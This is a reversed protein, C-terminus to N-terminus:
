LCNLFTLIQKYADKKIDSLKANNLFLQYKTKVEDLYDELSIKDAEYKHFDDWM